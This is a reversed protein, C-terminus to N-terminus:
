NMNIDKLLENEIKIIDPQTPTFKFNRRLLSIVRKSKNHIVRIEKERTLKMPNSGICYERKIYNETIPFMDQILFVSKRDDDLKCIHLFDCRKNNKLRGTIIKQYKEIKSSMPIVWLLNTSEDKIVCYHPRSESKNGKLYPDNFRLFFSDDIMYFGNEEVNNM